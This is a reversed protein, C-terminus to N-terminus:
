IFGLTLINNGNEMKKRDPAAVFLYNRCSSSLAFTGPLFSVATGELLIRTSCSGPSYPALSITVVSM